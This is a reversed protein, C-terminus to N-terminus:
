RCAAAILVISRIFRRSEKGNAGCRWELQQQQYARPSEKEIGEGQERGGRTSGKRASVEKGNGPAASGVGQKTGAIACLLLPLYSANHTTRETM